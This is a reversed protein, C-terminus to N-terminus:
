PLELHAPTARASTPPRWVSVNEPQVRLAKATVGRKEVAVVHKVNLAAWGAGGIDHKDVAESGLRFFVPHHQCGVQHASAVM